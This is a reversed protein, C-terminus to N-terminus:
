PTGSSLPIQEAGIHAVIQLSGGLARVYAALTRVETAGPEAREIASVREQRVQMRAAVQAQTLGARQRAEALTRARSRAVLAEADAEVEAAEGPFFEDVFSEADYRPFSHARRLSTIAHRLAQDADGDEPVRALLIVEGDAVRFLIRCGRDGAAAPRLEKVDPVESASAARAGEGAEARAGEGAEARAGEDAEATKAPEDEAATALQHGLEDTIGLFAEYVARMGEAATHRAKVVEKRTRFADLKAQLRQSAASLKKEEDIMSRLQSHLGSLQDEAAAQRARADSALDDRGASVADSVQAQLKRRTQELQSVQLEVRKRATAVDAVGRRVKQLLDLQRQYSFDLIARPDTPSLAAALPVVLPRGLATGADAVALIAAGVARATVPDSGRLKALWDHIDTSIRLPHPM